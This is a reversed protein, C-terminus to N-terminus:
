VHARGIQKTGQVKNVERYFVDLDSMWVDYADWTIECKAMWFPGIAVEHVPSEDPKRSAEGDPSGMRFVGGPIPLMQITAPSHEIKEVYPKMEKENAAVSDPIM